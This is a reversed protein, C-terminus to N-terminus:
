FRLQINVETFDLNSLFNRGFDDILLDIEFTDNEGDTSLTSTTPQPTPRGALDMDDSLEGELNMQKVDVEELDSRTEPGTTTESVSDDKPLDTPKMHVINMATPGASRNDLKENLAASMNVLEMMTMSSNKLLLIEEVDATFGAFFDFMNDVIYFILYEYISRHKKIEELKLDELEERKATSQLQLSFEKELEVLYEESRFYDEFLEDMMGEAIEAAVSDLNLNIFEEEMIDSAGLAEFGLCFSNSTKNLFVGEETIVSMCNSILSREQFYCEDHREEKTTLVKRERLHHSTEMVDVEFRGGAYAIAQGREFIKLCKQCREPEATCNTAPLKEYKGVFAHEIYVEISSNFFVLTWSCPSEVSSICSPFQDLNARQVARLSGCKQLFLDLSGNTHIRLYLKKSNMSVMNYNYEFGIILTHELKYKPNSLELPARPTEGDVANSNNKFYINAISDAFKIDPSRMSIMPYGSPNGVIEIESVTLNIPNYRKKFRDIQLFVRSAIQGGCSSTLQTVNSGSRVPECTTKLDFWELSILLQESLKLLDVEGLLNSVQVRVHGVFVEESLIIAIWTPAEHSGLISSITRTDEDILNHAPFVHNEWDFGFNKMDISEPCPQGTTCFERLQSTVAVRPFVTHNGGLPDQNPYGEDAGLAAKRQYIQIVDGRVLLHKGTALSWPPTIPRETVQPSDTRGVTDAQETIRDEKDVEKEESTDFKLNRARGTFGEEIVVPRHLIDLNRQPTPDFKIVELKVGTEREEAFSYQIDARSDAVLPHSFQVLVSFILSIIM